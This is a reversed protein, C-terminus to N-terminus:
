MKMSFNRLAAIASYLRADGAGEIEAFPFGYAILEQRYEEYLKLRNEGGNERVQDPKWPLDPRCLLYLDMPYDQIKRELWDPSKGFVWKFWVKTIILWTDFFFLQDTSIQTALYHEVQHSAIIEVDEYTYQHKLQQCYERAYESIYTGGYVNALRKALETKGTCEPGTIAVRIQKKQHGSM